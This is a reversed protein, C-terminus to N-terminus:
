LYFIEHLVNIGKLLTTLHAIIQDVLHVKFVHLEKVLKLFRTVLKFLKLSL